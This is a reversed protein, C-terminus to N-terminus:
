DESVILSQISFLSRKVINMSSLQVKSNLHINNASLRKLQYVIVSGEM